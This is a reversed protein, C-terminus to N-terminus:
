LDLVRDRHAARRIAVIFLGCRLAVTAGLAGELDVPGAIVTAGWRWCYDALLANAAELGAQRTKKRHLCVAGIEVGQGNLALQWSIRRWAIPVDSVVPRLKALTTRM